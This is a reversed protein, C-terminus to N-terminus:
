PRWDMAFLLSEQYKCNVIASKEALYPYPFEEIQSGRNGDM